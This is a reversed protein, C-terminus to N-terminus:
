KLKENGKDDGRQSTAVEVAFLQKATKVM